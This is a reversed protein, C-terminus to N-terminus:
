LGYQKRIYDDYQAQQKRRNRWNLFFLIAGVILALFFLVLIVKFIAPAKKIKGTLAFELQDQTQYSLTKDQETTGTQNLNGDNGVYYRYNSHKKFVSESLTTSITIAKYFSTIVQGNATKCILRQPIGVVVYNKETSILNPSEIIICQANEAVAEPPVAATIDSDQNAINGGEAVTVNAEFDSTKTNAAAYESKNGAPDVARVRYYIQTSYTVDFDKYVTTLINDNVSAWAAQDASKELEYHVVGSDDTSADWSLTVLSREPNAAFNTPVSPTTIDGPNVTVATANSSAQIPTPQPTPAPAPTPTPTPAPTPAPCANTSATLNDSLTETGSGYWAGVRFTYSTGCSLGTHNYTLTSNSLTAILAGNRYAKFNNTNETFNWQVEVSSTTKSKVSVSPKGPPYTQAPPTYFTAKVTASGSYFNFYCSNTSCSVTGDTSSRSVVSWGQFGSPNSGTLFLTVGNPPGFRIGQCFTPATFTQGAASNCTGFSYGGSTVTISGGYGVVEITVFSDPTEQANTGLNRMVGITAIGMIFLMGLASSLLHVRNIRPLKRSKM